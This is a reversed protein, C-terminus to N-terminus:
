HQSERESAQSSEQRERRERAEHARRQCTTLSPVRSLKQAWRSGCYERLDKPLELMRLPCTFYPRASVGVVTPGGLPVLSSCKTLVGGPFGQGSVAHRQLTSLALKLVRAREPLPLVTARYVAQPSAPLSRGAFCEFDMSLEMFSVQGKGPIWILANVWQVLDDCFGRDWRWTSDTMTGVAFPTRDDPRPLPGYLQLHPYLVVRNPKSTGNFLQTDVRSARARPAELAMTHFITMFSCLPDRPVGRSLHLPMLGCLKLFRAM